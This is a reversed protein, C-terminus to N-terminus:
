CFKWGLIGNEGVWFSTFCQYFDRGLKGIRPDLLKEKTKNQKTKNEEWFFFFSRFNPSIEWGIKGIRWSWFNMFM